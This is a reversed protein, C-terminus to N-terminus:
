SGPSLECWNSWFKCDENDTLFKDQILQVKSTVDNQKDLSSKVDEVAKLFKLPMDSTMDRKFVFNRFVDLQEKNRLVESITRGYM